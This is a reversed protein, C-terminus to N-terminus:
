GRKEGRRWDSKGGGGRGGEGEGTSGYWGNQARASPFRRRRPSTCVRARASFFSPFFFSPVRQLADVRFPVRPPMLPTPRRLPAVDPHM